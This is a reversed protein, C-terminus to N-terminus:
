PGWVGVASASWRIGNIYDGQSLIAGPLRNVPLPVPDSM